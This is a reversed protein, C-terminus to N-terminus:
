GLQGRGQRKFRSCDSGVGSARVLAVCTVVSIAVSKWAKPDPAVHVPQQHMVTAAHERGSPSGVQERLRHGGRQGHGRRERQGRGVRKRGPRGGCWWGQHDGRGSGQVTCACVRHHFDNYKDSQMVSLQIIALHITDRHGLGQAGALCGLFGPFPLHISVFGPPRQGGLLWCIGFLLFCAQIFFALRADCICCPGTPRASCWVFAGYQCTCSPESCVLKSQPCPQLCSAQAPAGVWCSLFLFGANNRTHWMQSPFPLKQSAILPKLLLM